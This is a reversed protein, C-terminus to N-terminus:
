QPDIAGLYGPAKATTAGGASFCGAAAQGSSTTNPNSDIYFRNDLVQLNLVNIFKRDPKLTTKTNVM